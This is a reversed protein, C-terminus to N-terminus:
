KQLMGRVGHIVFRAGPQAAAPLLGLAAGALAAAGSALKEVPVPINPIEFHFPNALFPLRVDAEVNVDAQGDHNTDGGGIRLSWLENDKLAM